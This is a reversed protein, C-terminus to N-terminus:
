SSGLLVKSSTWELGPPHPRHGCIRDIAFTKLCEDTHNGDQGCPGHGYKPTKYLINIDNKGYFVDSEVIDDRVFFLNSGTSELAVMSYGLSRALNYFAQVSAGFYTDLNNPAGKIDYVVVKDIPPPFVSNCETVIVRPRYEQCINRFIYWDNFDVDITLFDFEIPVNYKQFLSIVNEAVIRESHITSYHCTTDDCNWLIGTCGYNKHLIESNNNTDTAGFDVYFKNTFGITEFIKETIGDEGFQSFVHKEFKNLFIKDEPIKYIVDIGYNVYLDSYVNLINELINKEHQDNTRTLSYQVYEIRGRISFM